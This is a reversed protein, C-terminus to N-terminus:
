DIGGWNKRLCLRLLEDELMTGSLANERAANVYSERLELSEKIQHRASPTEFITRSTLTWSVFLIWLVADRLIVSSVDAVRATARSDFIRRLAYLSGLSLNFGAVASFDDERPLGAAYYYSSLAAVSDPGERSVDFRALFWLWSFLTAKNLIVATPTLQQVHAFLEITRRAQEVASADFPTSSRYRSALTAATIKERISRRELCTLFRALVDDYAMRANDFGVSRKNIGFGEFLKVLNKIEERAPGYFANRAEAATLNAPQNLRFFLEGPEEPGYDSIRILRIPFSEVQRRWKDPLDRFFMGDLAKIQPDNPEITGDVALENDFFDRAAVLRQQGDLVEQVGSSTEIVHIPPVHWNRLITDILRQRKSVAWVEGRQFNPQLDLDGRRIREILPGLEPESATLRM